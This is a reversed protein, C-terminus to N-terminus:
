DLKLGVICRTPKGALRKLLTEYGKAKLSITFQRRYKPKVGADDSWEKYARYLDAGAIISKEDPTCCEDIFQGIYDLEARHKKTEEDVSVPTPLGNRFWDRAGSVAWALVGALAQPSRLRHKLQKDEKGLFSHPFNIVRVRGWAVDDDVDVNLAWNSTLWIKFQPRYSFHTKRKFACYISDGGTIQKIVAPNLQNYRSSESATIFRCPKLPALDFNQTDGSRESTFTKFNTGKSLPEGLLYLITETFTGKGSRTPGYLYFLCEEWTHGTLSYGVALRLYEAMDENPVITNIFNVWESQDASADYPVSLCYTFRQSHHHPILEGTRLNLVGNLCNLLEKDKDFESIPIAVEKAKRLQDRTGTVNYRQAWSQKMKSKVEADAFIRRRLRLTETVAREVASEAGERDWHRGNYKLWGHSNNYAFRGPFLKLTCLAHGEHDASEKLLYEAIEDADEDAHDGNLSVTTEEVITVDTM